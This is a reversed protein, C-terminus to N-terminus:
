LHPSTAEPLSAGLLFVPRHRGLVIRVRCAARDVNPLPVADAALAFDIRHAVGEVLASEAALWRLTGPTVRAVAARLQRTGGDPMDVEVSAPMGSRVRQALRPGVQAVAQLASDGGARIQAVSTGAPMFDGRSAWLVTVEGGVHSVLLERASRRAEAQQLASRAAALRSRVAAGSGSFEAAEARLLDVRGQLSRVERDLEPVNQRAIPDGAVVVDGVGALYELLHGPETSVIDYRDGLKVLIGNIAVTESIRGFLAWSVLALVIACIGALVAREHPAVIRLLRDLQERESKSRQAEQLFPRNFM